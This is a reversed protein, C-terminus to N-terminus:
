KHTWSNIVESPYFLNRFPGVVKPTASTVFTEGVSTEVPLPCTGTVLWANSPIIPVSTSRSCRFNALNIFVLGDVKRPSKLGLSALPHISASSPVNEANVQVPDYFTVNAVQMSSASVFAQHALALLIISTEWFGMVQYTNLAASQPLHAMGFFAAKPFLNTERYQPVLYTGYRLLCDCNLLPVPPWNGICTTIRPHGLHLM